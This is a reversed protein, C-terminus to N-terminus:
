LRFLRIDTRMWEEDAPQCRCNKPVDALCRPSRRLLWAPEDRSALFSDFAEQTFRDNESDHCEPSNTRALKNHFFGPPAGQAKINLQSQKEYGVSGEM